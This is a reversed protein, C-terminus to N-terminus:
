DLLNIMISQNSSSIFSLIVLNSESIVLEPESLLSRIYLMAQIYRLTCQQAIDIDSKSEQSETSASFPRVCRYQVGSVLSLFHTNFHTRTLMAANQQM